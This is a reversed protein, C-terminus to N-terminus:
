NDLLKKLANGDILYNTDEDNFTIWSLDDHYYYFSITTILKDNRKYFKLKYNPLDKYPITTDKGMKSTNQIIKVIKNIENSATIKKENNENIPLKDVIITETKSLENKIDIGKYSKIVLLIIIALLILALITGSLIFIKKKM